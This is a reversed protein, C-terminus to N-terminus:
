FLLGGPLFLVMLAMLILPISIVKWNVILKGDFYSKTGLGTLNGWWDFFGTFVKMLFGMLKDM